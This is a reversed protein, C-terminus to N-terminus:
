KWCNIRRIGTGSLTICYATESEALVRGFVACAAGMALSYKFQPAPGRADCNKTTPALHLATNFPFYEGSISSTFAMAGAIKLCRITLFKLASASPILTSFIISSNSFYNSRSAERNAIPFNLHYNEKLM